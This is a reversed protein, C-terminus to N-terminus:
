PIFAYLSLLFCVQHLITHFIIHKISCWEQNSYYNSLYFAMIVICIMYLYQTIQVYRMKKCFLTYVIFYAISIKAIYADLKHILSGRIPNHWFLQSFYFVIILCWGLIVENVNKKSWYLYYIFSILFLASTTKTCKHIEFQGIHM